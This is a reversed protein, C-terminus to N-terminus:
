SLLVSKMSGGDNAWIRLEGNTSNKVMRSLGTTIDVTTPDATLTQFGHTIIGCSIAGAASGDANRISLGGASRTEISPGTTNRRISVDAVNALAHGNVWGLPRSGDISIGNVTDNFSVIANGNGYIATTAATVIQFGSGTGYNSNRFQPQGYTYTTSTISQTGTISGSATLAGCDLAGAASGDATRVRLGGASRTELSPGTSNRRITVDPSNSLAHGNVFGLPRSGDIRVGNIDDNVAFVAVTNGYLALSGASVVGFGANASIASSYFQPSGYTYGSSSAVRQGTLLGSFSGTTGSLGGTLTGGTLPLKDNSNPIAQRSVVGTSSITLMETGSNPLSDLWDSKVGKFRLPQRTQMVM